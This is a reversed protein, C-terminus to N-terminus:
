AGAMELAKDKEKASPVISPFMAQGDGNTSYVTFWQNDKYTPKIIVTGMHGCELSLDCYLKFGAKRVRNFFGIDDGWHDPETEGLLIWPDSMAKFVETKILVCGLGCNVIEILGNEGASPFHHICRGDPGAYDFINPRHPFSRLLYLGTVIDKDHSLLRAITDPPCAMDDDIFLVHTSNTALAQRIAINRNRAPSQGRVFMIGTGVPKDMVNFFDYFQDNRSFGATPVAVLIKSESM